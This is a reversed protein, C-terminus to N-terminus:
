KSASVNVTVKVKLKLKVYSKRLAGLVDLLGNQAFCLVLCINKTREAFVGLVDSCVRACRLVGLCWIRAGLCLVCGFVILCLISPFFVCVSKKGCSDRSLWLRKGVCDRASVCVFRKCLMEWNRSAKM